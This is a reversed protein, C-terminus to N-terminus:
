FLGVFSSFLIYTRIKQHTDAFAVLYLLFAFLMYVTVIKFIRGGWINKYIYYTNLM